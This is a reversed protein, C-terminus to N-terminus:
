KRPHAKNNLTPVLPQRPVFACMQRVMSRISATNPTKFFAARAAKRIEESVVPFGTYICIPIKQVAPNSAAWHLFTEAPMGVLKLDLVILDPLPQDGSLWRIAKAADAAHTVSVSLGKISFQFLFADDNSDEVLLLNIPDPPTAVTTHAVRAFASAVFPEVGKRTCAKAQTHSAMTAGRHVPWAPRKLLWFIGPATLTVSIQLSPAVFVYKPKTLGNIAKLFAIRM